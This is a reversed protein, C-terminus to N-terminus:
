SRPAASAQPAAAHVSDLRAAHQRACTRAHQWSGGVGQVRARSGAGGEPARRARRGACGRDPPVAGGYACVQPQGRADAGRLGAAHPQVGGRDGRADRRAARPRHRGHHRRPLLRARGGPSLLPHTGPNRSSPATCLHAHAFVPRACPRARPGAEGPRRLRQTGCAAAAGTCGRGWGRPLGPRCVGRGRRVLEKIAAEILPQEDSVCRYEAEWPSAVAEAFFRLIAPGSLDEYVGATARDSVTLVGFRAEDGPTGARGGATPAGGPAAM